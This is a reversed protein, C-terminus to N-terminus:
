KSSTKLNQHLSQSLTRTTVQHDTSISNPTTLGAPPLPSQTILTKPNIIQLKTIPLKTTQHKSLNPKTIQHKTTQPKTTQLKQTRLKPTQLTMTQLKTTQLKTTRLKMCLISFRFFDTLSEFIKLFNISFKGFIM